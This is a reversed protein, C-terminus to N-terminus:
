SSVVEEDDYVPKMAVVSFGFEKGLHLLDEVGGERDRGFHHDYGEVVEAVGIGEIVYRLYFERFPQRSFEYTFRIAFFLDIGFQECLRQKEEITTLVTMAKGGLVEKPHPEFTVVVSRAKRGRARQVVESLLEAHALHVGDFSGVTVVSNKDFEIDSLQYAIRM